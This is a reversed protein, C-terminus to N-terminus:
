GMSYFVSGWSCSDTPNESGNSLAEGSIKLVVRKYAMDDELDNDKKLIIGYAVM